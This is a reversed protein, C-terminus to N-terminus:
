KAPSTRSMSAMVPPKLRWAAQLVAQVTAVERQVEGQLVVQLVVQVTAGVVEDGWKAGYSVDKSFRCPERLPSKGLVILCAPSATHVSVKRM